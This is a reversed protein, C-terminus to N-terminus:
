CKQECNEYEDQCKELCRPDVNEKNHRSEILRILFYYHHDCELCGNECIERNSECWKRCQAPTGKRCGASCHCCTIYCGGLFGPRAGCCGWKNKGDKCTTYAPFMGGLFPGCCISYAATPTLLALLIFLMKALFCIERGFLNLIKM